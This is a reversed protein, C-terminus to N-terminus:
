QVIYIKICDINGTNIYIKVQHCEQIPRESEIQGIATGLIKDYITFLKFTM